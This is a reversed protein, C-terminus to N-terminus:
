SLDICHFLFFFVFIFVYIRSRLLLAFTNKPTSFNKLPTDVTNKEIKYGKFVKNFLLTAGSFPRPPAVTDLHILQIKM